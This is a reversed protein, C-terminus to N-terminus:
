PRDLRAIRNTRGFHRKLAENTATITEPHVGNLHKSVIELLGVPLVPKLLYDTAGALVANRVIHLDCRGSLLIFPLAPAVARVTRLLDLGNMGPMNVDSLLLDIRQEGAALWGLLEGACGFTRCQYGGASLAECLFHRMREDDDVM